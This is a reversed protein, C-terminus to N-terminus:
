LPNVGIPRPGAHWRNSFTAFEVAVAPFVRAIHGLIVVNCVVLVRGLGEGRGGALDARLFAICLNSPAATPLRSVSNIAPHFRNAMADPQEVGGRWSEPKPKVGRGASCAARSCKIHQRMKDITCAVRIPRHTVGANVLGIHWRRLIRNRQLPAIETTRWHDAARIQADDAAVSDRVGARRAQRDAM